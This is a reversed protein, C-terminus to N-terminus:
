TRLPFPSPAFREPIQAAETKQNKKLPEDIKRLRHLSMTQILQCYFFPELGNPILVRKQQRALTNETHTSLERKRTIKIDKIKFFFIFARFFAAMGHRSVSSLRYESRHLHADGLDM